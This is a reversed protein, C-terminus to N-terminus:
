VNGGGGAKTPTVHVKTEGTEWKDLAGVMLLRKQAQLIIAELHNRYIDIARARSSFYVGRGRSLWYSPESDVHNKDVRREYPCNETKALLYTLATEKKVLVPELSFKGDHKEMKWLEM